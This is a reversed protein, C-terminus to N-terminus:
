NILIWMAKILLIFIVIAQLYLFGTRTRFCLLSSPQLQVRLPDFNRCKYGSKGDSTPVLRYNAYQYYESEIFAQISITSVPYITPANIPNERLLQNLQSKYKLPRPQYPSSSITYPSSSPFPLSYQNPSPFEPSYQNPSHFAPTIPSSYPSSSYFPAKPVQKIDEIYHVDSEKGSTVGPDAVEQEVSKIDSACIVKIVELIVEKEEYKPVRELLTGESSLCSEVDLLFKQKCRWKRVTREKIKRLILRRNQNLFALRRRIYELSKTNCKQQMQYSPPTSPVLLEM